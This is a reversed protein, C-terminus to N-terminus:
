IDEDDSVSTDLQLEQISEKSEMLMMQKFENKNLTDKMLVANLALTVNVGGFATTNNLFGKRSLVNLATTLPSGGIIDGLLIIEDNKKINSVLEELKESFTSVSMGDILSTSLIDNRNKGAMMDLVSHIGKALIGHSVILVYKM